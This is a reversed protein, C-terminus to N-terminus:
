HSQVVCHQRANVKANALSEQIIQRTVGPPLCESGKIGILYHCYDQYITSCMMVSYLPNKSKRTTRPTHLSPKNKFMPTSWDWMDDFDSETEAKRPGVRKGSAIDFWEEDGSGDYAETFPSTFRFPNPATEFMSPFGSGDFFEDFEREMNTFAEEFFDNNWEPRGPTAFSFSFTTRPKRFQKSAKSNAGAMTRAAGSQRLSEFFDDFDAFDTFFHHFQFHGNQNSQNSRRFRAWGTSSSENEEEPDTQRYRERTSSQSSNSTDQEYQKPRSQRDNDTTQQLDYTRRKDSDSLVAYAAAITKFKEEAGATKNKDPHYQKALSRYAKKIQEPTAKRDVGLVKYHDTVAM